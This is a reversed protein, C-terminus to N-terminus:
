TRIFCDIVPSELGNTSSLSLHDGLMKGDFSDYGGHRPTCVTQAKAPITGAGGPKWIPSDYGEVSAELESGLTVLM